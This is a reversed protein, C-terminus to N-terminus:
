AAHTRRRDRTHAAGGKATKSPHARRLRCRGSEVECPVAASVHELARGIGMGVRLM